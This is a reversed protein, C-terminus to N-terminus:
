GKLRSLIEDEFFKESEEPKVSFFQGDVDVCVGGECKGMCFTGSLEAVNELGHNNIMERFTEVVRRSGKIHCSSGICVTIKMLNREKTIEAMHRRVRKHSSFLRAFDYKVASKVQQIANRM